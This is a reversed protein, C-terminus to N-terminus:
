HDSGEPLLATILYPTAIGALLILLKRRGGDVGDDHPHALAPQLVTAVYLFTGGSFLLATGQWAGGSGGFFSLVAYSLLTAIPTTSSFIALHRKCEAVPLSMSLLSTTLALATPAKHVVLALFVAIFLRSPGSNEDTGSASLAASGMAIGDVLAHVALGLTLPYARQRLEINESGSYLYPRSRTDSAIGETRELEGLEADFELSSSEAPLSAQGSVGGFTPSHSSFQREVVLMFAFGSLLSLAIATRPANAEIIGLVGEPIVVGLAAGLLLGTGYTTLSALTSKSFTVSLPLMGMGFSAAGLLGAVFVASSLSM